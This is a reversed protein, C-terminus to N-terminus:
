EGALHTVGISSSCLDRSHRRAGHTHQVRGAVVVGIGLWLVSTMRHHAIRLYHRKTWVSAWSLTALLRLM